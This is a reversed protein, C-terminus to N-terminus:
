IKKGVVAAGIVFTLLFIVCRMPLLYYMKRM